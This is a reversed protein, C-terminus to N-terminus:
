LNTAVNHGIARLYGVVDDEMKYEEYRAVIRAVRADAAEYKNKRKPPSYGGEARTIEVDIEAVEEQLQALFVFLSPHHKGVLSNLRGHWAECTNTTRPRGQEAREYCNWIEPPFLPRGRTQARGRRRAQLRGRLYNNDVYDFVPQLAQDAVAKLEDFAAEVDDLPVFAVAILARFDIRMQENDEERYAADLGGDQLQRWLSQGFHFLCGALECDAM